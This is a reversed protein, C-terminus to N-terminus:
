VHQKYPITFCFRAGKDDGNEVWIRGEHLEIIKKSIALGLGSGKPKRITQNKAQFFKEFIVKQLEPKVGKGNDSINVKLYGDIVYTTINVEGAEPDCHKVANSLLNLIVQTIRDEDALVADINRQIDVKVTILKSKFVQEMTGLTQQILQVMDVTDLALQHKGSEFNELDLIQSILRTMRETESVITNLYHKQTDSDIDDHDSLIEGLARISTLPTRMEHTVTYLFEDKLEDNQKLAKNARAIADTARKLQESKKTLEKNLKLLEQSEKLIDVVDQMGIEEEKTVSAVLIRASSSGIVGTLLKEAYNIFKSDALASEKINADHMTAFQKIANDTKSEGLFRVLLSKVDPFYAVGKWVVSSEYAKSYRFIDVFIEAQNREVSHQKGLLSVWVYLGVNAFLSWFLTTTIINTASANSAIGLSAIVDLDVVSVSPYVLNIFWILFGAFMGWKAGQKTGRKWFMGGLISPAFQSVAVFSILGISILSFRDAVVAYYAYALLLIIAISLRRFIVPIYQENRNFLSVLWGKNIVLPMLVSNSLMKSLSHTSVIIMGTAAAFGGIYSISALSISGAKLPIALVYLDSNVSSNAFLQNGGLAIPLVFLNILLLYLPFMWIATNLQRESSNEVVAMEFQRPLFMVAMGSLFMLGFWEGYNMDINPQIPNMATITNFIDAPGNFWVFTVAIGIVAFAVLKIISEVAMTGVLGTHKNGSQMKRTTFFVIFVGIFLLLLISEVTFSKQELANLGVGGSLVQMSQEIAKIQLAIYPIIGILFFMSVWQGISQDKGYRASIFESLTGLRQVKSIRIMKRIVVWWLPATLTPGLYIAMYELVHDAALGVSGYFTWATCYVALSLSYLTPNKKIRVGKGALHQIYYGVGFLILLYCISLTVVHWSTM